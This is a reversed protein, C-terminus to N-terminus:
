ESQTHSRNDNNGKNNQSAVASPLQNYEVSSPLNGPFGLCSFFVNGYIFIKVVSVIHTMQFAEFLKM